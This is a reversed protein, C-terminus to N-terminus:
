PLPDSDGLRSVTRTRSVLPMWGVLSQRPFKQRSHKWGSGTREKKHLRNSSPERFNVMNIDLKTHVVSRCLSAFSLLGSRSDKSVALETSARDCTRAVVGLSLPVLFITNLYHHFIKGKTSAFCAFQHVFCPLSYFYQTLLNSM